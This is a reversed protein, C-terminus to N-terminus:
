IGNIDAMAKRSAWDKVKAVLLRDKKSHVHPTLEDRLAATTTGKNRLMWVSDQVRKAGLEQLKATLGSYDFDPNRLDYTVLYLAM